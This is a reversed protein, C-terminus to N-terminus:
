SKRIVAQLRKEFSEMLRNMVKDIDKDTLTKDDDRLYFSLAYSKKGSGIKDGEYVDFLNIRRLMKRETEFALAEIAAYSVNKDLVMSLDRRVEPFRPPEQIVPPAIRLIQDLVELDLEAYFVDGKLDFTRALKKNVAGAVGLVRKKVRLAVQQNIFSDVAMTDWKWRSRDTGAVDLINELLSKLFYVNWPEDKVKWHEPQRTGTLILALKNSETYGEATAGYVKGFEFGRINNSKRNTNYSAMDLLPFLMHPRMIDLESSLPNKIRVAVPPQDYLELLTSRTLSNCMVETFGRAVLLAAIKNRVKEMPVLPAPPLPANIKENLPIRNYGYIRLIEESVDAPRKVDVRYPPVYLQLQGDGSLESRIDLSQLIKQLEGTELTVGTLRAFSVPSFTLETDGVPKPYIDVLRSTITGGSIETILTAARLLAKVTINPDSGREFRFSADTKLGHLRSSKRISVPDFTASELFIETTEETVGSHIGGFIGAMCMGGESDCIMLENGSLIREENDLTRFKTKAPLKQVIVKRGAIKGADFAHLPQGMEYLVFNTIDVVTNIPKLGVSRLRNCLWAPSPNVKIGSIHVGSYRICDDDKVEVAIEPNQDPIAPTKEEPWIVKVDTNPIRTNIVAALDRAVGIHSAADSRNPTLGISFISDTEINFYEAVSAGPVADKDLILIGAHSEGLGIEDEACIMGESAEGRIKSKKIEFPDGSLPFITTGPLAVIVKLGAAVNPAGCVIQALESSGTNVKCVTLRDANPHSITEIVEGVVLGKLGGKVTEFKEIGEVELGCSTLLEATEHAKLGPNIYQCLWNYSINM